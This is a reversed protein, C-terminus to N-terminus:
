APRWFRVQRYCHTIVKTLEGGLLSNCLVWWCKKRRPELRLAALAYKRAIAFRGYKAAEVSWRHYHEITLDRDNMQREAPALTPLRIEAMGRRHCTEKILAARTVSAVVPNLRHSMSNLHWRYRLLPYRINALKGVEGLRLFLDVDVDLEGYQERYGGVQRVAWARMMVTPHCIAGRGAFFIKEIEDHDTPAEDVYIDRGQEDMILVSSGVAVCDPRAKLFAFQRELRTPMAIDDADMRALLQGRAMAIADNLAGVIGTNSRSLIRVKADDAYEKLIQLSCDASGDDVAIVEFDNHTQVLLSDLANRLYKEANYIPLLVSILPDRML